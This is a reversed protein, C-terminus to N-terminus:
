GTLHTSQASQLSRFLDSHDSALKTPDFLGNILSYMEKSTKDAKEQNVKVLDKVFTILSGAIQDAIAANKQGESLAKFM